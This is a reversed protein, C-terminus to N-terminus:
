LKLWNAGDSIVTLVVNQAVTGPAAGDITQSSTTAITLVTSFLNKIRYVRGARGVASPLTCTLASANFTVVQERDLTASATRATILSGSRPFQAQMPVVTM